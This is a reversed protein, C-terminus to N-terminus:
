DIGVHHECGKPIFDEPITMCGAEGLEYVPNSCVWKGGQAASAFKCSRCNKEVPEDYHCIDKFTCFKCAFNTSSQSIKLLPEPSTIIHIAKDVLIKGYEDDLKHFEILIDDDNKSVIVFVVYEIKSLQGSFCAQAWYKPQETQIGYKKMKTFNSLSATKFEFIVKDPVEFREPLYGVGDLKTVAHDECISFTWQDQGEPPEEFKCGIDKLHEILVPEERHGRNFLRIVRGAPRTESGLEEEKAWRFNYWVERSCPKGILSSGLRRSKRRDAKEEVKEDIDVMLTKAINERIVIDNEYTSSM